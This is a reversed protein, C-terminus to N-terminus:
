DREWHTLSNWPRYYSSKKVYITISLQFGGRGVGESPPTLPLDFNNSREKFVRM